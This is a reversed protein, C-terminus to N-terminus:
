PFTAEHNVLDLDLYNMVAPCALHYILIKMNGLFRSTLQFNQIYSVYCSALEM